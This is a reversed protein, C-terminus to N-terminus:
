HHNQGKAQGRDGFVCIYEAYALKMKVCHEERHKEAAVQAKNHKAM